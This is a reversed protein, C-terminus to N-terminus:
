LDGPDDKHAARYELRTKAKEMQREIILDALVESPKQITNEALAVKAKEEIVDIRYLIWLLKEFDHDILFDLQDILLIRIKQLSNEEVTVKTLNFNNQIIEILIKEEEPIM